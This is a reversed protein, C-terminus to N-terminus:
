SLWTNLLDVAGIISGAVVLLILAPLIVQRRDCLSCSSALFGHACSPLVGPGPIRTPPPRDIM